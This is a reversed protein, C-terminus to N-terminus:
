RSSLKQHDKSHFHDRVGESLSNSATASAGSLLKTYREMKPQHARLVTARVRVGQSIPTPWRFHCSVVQGVFISQRRQCPNDDGTALAWDSTTVVLPVRAIAARKPSHRRTDAVGGQWRRERQRRSIKVDLEDCPINMRTLTM